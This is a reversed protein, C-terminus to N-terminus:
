STPKGKDVKIIEAILGNIRNKFDKIAQSADIKETPKDKGYTVMWEDFSGYILKSTKDIVDPKQILNLLAEHGIKPGEVKIVPATTSAPKPSSVAEKSASAKVKEKESQSQKLTVPTAMKPSTQMSLLVTVPNMGSKGIIKMISERINETSDISKKPSLTTANVLKLIIFLFIFHIAKMEIDIGISPYSSAIQYTRPYIAHM